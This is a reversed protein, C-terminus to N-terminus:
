LSNVQLESTVTLLILINVINKRFIIQNIPYFQIGPFNSNYLRIISLIAISLALAIVGELGKPISRLILTVRTSYSRTYSTNDPDGLTSM